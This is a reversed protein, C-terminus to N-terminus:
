LQVNTKGIGAKSDTISGILRDWPLSPRLQWMGVLLGNTEAGETKNPLDLIALAWQVLARETREDAISVLEEGFLGSMMDERDVYGLAAPLEPLQMAVRIQQADHACMAAAREGLGGFCQNVREIIRTAEDILLMADAPAAAFAAFPSSVGTLQQQMLAALGAQGGESSLGTNVWTSLATDFDRMAPILIEGLKGQMEDVYKKPVKKVGMGPPVGIATLIEAYKRQAALSSFNDYVAPVPNGRRTSVDVIQTEIKRVIGDLNFRNAFWVQIGSMVIGPKVKLTGGARLVGIFSEFDTPVPPLSAAAQQMGATAPAASASAPAAEKVAPKPRLITRIANNLKAKAVDPLAKKIDGTECDEENLLYGLAEDGPEGVLSNLADNVSGLSMGIAKAFMGVTKNWESSEVATEPAKEATVTEVVEGTAKKVDGEGSKVEKDGTAM